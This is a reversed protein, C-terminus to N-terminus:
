RRPSRELVEVAEAVPTWGPRWPRHHGDGQVGRCVGEQWGRKEMLTSPGSPAATTQGKALTVGGWSKWTVPKELTM